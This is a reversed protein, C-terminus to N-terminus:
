VRPEPFKFGLLKFFGVFPVALLTMVVLLAILLLFFVWFLVVFPIFYLLILAFYCWYGIKDKLPQDSSPKCKGMITAVLAPNMESMFGNYFNSTCEKVSSFIATM